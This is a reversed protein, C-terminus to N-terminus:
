EADDLSKALNLRIEYSGLSRCPLLRNTGLCSVQRFWLLPMLYLGAAHSESSTRFSYRKLWMRPRGQARCSSLALAHLYLALVAAALRQHDPSVPPGYSVNGGGTRWSRRFGQFEGFPSSPASLGCHQWLATGPFARHRGPAHAPTNPCASQRVSPTGPTQPLSAIQDGIQLPPTSCRIIAVRVIFAKSSSVGQFNLRFQLISACVTRREFHEIAAPKLQGQGAWADGDCCDSSM